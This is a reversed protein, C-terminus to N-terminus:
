SQASRIKAFRNVFVFREASDVRVLHQIELAAVNDLKQVSDAIRPM